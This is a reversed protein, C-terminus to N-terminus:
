NKIKIGKLNMDSIDSKMRSMDTKVTSIDQRMLPLSNTNDHIGSLHELIAGSNERLIDVNNKMDGTFGTITSVNTNTEYMLAQMATFRGNLEDASDQSMSFFGSESAERESDSISSWDFGSSSAADSALDMANEYDGVLIEANTYFDSFISTLAENLDDGSLTTFSDSLSDQLDDFLSSFISTYILQSVVGELGENVVDFFAKASDSGDLWADNIASYLDDNLTGVLSKLSDNIAELAEDYEEQYEILSELATESEENLLGSNVLTQELETNLNGASDILDSFDGSLDLKDWADELDEYVDSKGVTIGLFKKKKVGTKIDLDALVDKLSSGDLSENINVLADQAAAAADQISAVYDTYFISAGESALRIQENLVANYELQLDILENTYEKVANRYEKAGSTLTTYISAVGSLTNTIGGVIDGSALQAIGTGLSATGQTLDTLVQIDNSVDEGFIEGLSAGWGDVLSFGDSMAGNFSKLSDSIDEGNKISNILEKFGDSIKSFPNGSDYASTVENYKEKLKQFEEITMTITKKVEEGDETIEGTPIEVEILTEGNTDIQKATDIVDSLSEKLSKLTSTGYNEIDGFAKQYLPSLKLIAENQVQAM